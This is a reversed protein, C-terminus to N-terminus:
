YFEMRTNVFFSLNKYQCQSTAQPTHVKARIMHIRNWQLLSAWGGVGGAWSVEWLRKHLEQEPRWLLHEASFNM